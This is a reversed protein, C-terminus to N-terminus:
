LYFFFIKKESMAQFNKFIMEKLENGETTNNWLELLFQILYNAYQNVALDM